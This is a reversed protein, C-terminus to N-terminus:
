EDFLHSGPAVPTEVPDSYPAEPDEETFTPNYPAADEMPGTGMRYAVPKGLADTGVYWGYTVAYSGRPADGIYEGAFDGTGGVACTNSSDCNVILIGTVQEVMIRDTEKDRVKRSVVRPSGPVTCNAVPFPSRPMLGNCPQVTESVVYGAHAATSALLLATALLTTRM